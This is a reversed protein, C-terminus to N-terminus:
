TNNQIITVYLKYFFSLHKTSCLLSGGGWCKQNIWSYATCGICEWYSEIFHQLINSFMRLDSFLPWFSSRRFHEKTERQAPFWWNNNQDNSITWGFLNRLDFSGGRIGFCVFTIHDLLILRFESINIKLYIWIPILICNGKYKIIKLMVLIAIDKSGYTWNQHPKWCLIARINIFVIM